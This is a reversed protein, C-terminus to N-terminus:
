IIFIYIINESPLFDPYTYALFKIDISRQKLNSKFLRNITKFPILGGSIYQFLNFKCLIYRNKFLKCFLVDCRLDSKM